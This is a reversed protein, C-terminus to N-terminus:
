KGFKMPGIFNTNVKNILEGDEYIGFIIKNKTTSLNTKKIRVFLTGEYRDRAKVIINNHGVLEIEGEHSILKLDVDKDFNTKNIMKYTFVNSITGTSDTQYLQGPLRLINTDIDTRLMLLSIVASILITLVISYGIIRANATPKEGNAINDESAYRILGKPLNVSDMVSDCADMCATCNVCEMQSGNRIDIGTPCVEVCQNCDICDGKGSAIRDESKKFKARGKEKEGRIYDYSVQISKSDLLVGQLRGYPCAIICAQERFSAFVFYFVLTFLALIGFGGPNEIPGVKIFEIVKDIGIIYAFFTNAILFSILFFVFWKIARKRIKEANWPMKGLKMQKIRDGDILFEIKRFVMELFITQPCLWGCFIRGFVVTFLVVFVIGTIMMLVFIYFDQPYFMSGLISFQRELINIMLIPNGDIKIFPGIFFLALLLWSVYTRYNYFSGKPKKPYIFHRSGDENITGISDRFSEDKM